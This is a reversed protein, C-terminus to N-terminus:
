DTDYISMATLTDLVSKQADFLEDKNIVVRSITKNDGDFEFM